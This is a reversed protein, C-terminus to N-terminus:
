EKGYHRRGKNLIGGFWYYDFIGILLITFLFTWVAWDPVNFVRIVINLVTMSAFLVLLEILRKKMM